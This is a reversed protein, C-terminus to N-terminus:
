SAGFLVVKDEKPKSVIDNGGMRVWDTNDIYDFKAYVV